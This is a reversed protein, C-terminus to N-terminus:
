RGLCNQILCSPCPGWKFMVRLRTGIRGSRGAWKSGLNGGGSTRIRPQTTVFEQHSQPGVQLGGGVWGTGEVGVVLM